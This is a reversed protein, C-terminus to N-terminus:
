NNLLYPRRYGFIGSSLMDSVDFGASDGFGKLVFRLAIGSDLKVPNTFNNISQDLNTEIQRRAVLRIAWCCSEYQVGINAEIMRHNNVDRYYSAVAQWQDAIPMTGLAGLQAIENSSVDRSYRHNLQFIKKDDARYDLSVNTKVMRKTESDYQVGSNLFWRQQWHFLTEAAFISETAAIASPQGPAIEFETKPDDLFLIQGMSFRFRETDQQDYVRTTWGLTLQNTDNIRDLGSYRNQRFLGYYDDQLRATDFLAINRQDRYPIYLYQIQPELTQLANEGFWDSEREFNLKGNMSFKPMSRQVSEELLGSPQELHQEYYTQLLSGEFLLELAPTNYPLRITPELHLRDATKVNQIDNSFHAYQGSWLFELGAGLEIPKASSLNLQPLAAYAKNYNGLIEFGQMQLDSRVVDGYYSLTAQRYLQTDSQNNIDSGLETLYSDDSIDTFDITARWRDNFDALHSIHSLYRNGFDAAKDQDKNLYEVYLSGQHQSTLYRFESKLQTGRQSMYRPTLTADFNDALNLYYPVEIDLGLKQSSGIKPFLVGTKRKDNVPYTMYPLYLVPIDKIKVVSGWAEGWGDDANINIKDAALAWGNDGEPCTSFTAQNLVVGEDSASMESAYGRGAQSIFRYEADRMTVKNQALQASFSSSSVKLASSYYSIGGDAFMSQDIKSVRAMPATLLTDRYTLQLPGSFEATQNDILEAKASEIRLQDDNKDLTALIAPIDAKPYCLQTPPTDSASAAAHAWGSTSTGAIALLLWQNLLTRKM